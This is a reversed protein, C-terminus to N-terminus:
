YYGFAAWQLSGSANVMSYLRYRLSDTSPNIYFGSVNGANNHPSGVVLPRTGEKFPQPYTHYHSPTRRGDGDQNGISVVETEGWCIQLGVGPIRICTGNENSVVDLDLLGEVVAVRDVLDNSKKESSEALAGVLKYVNRFEDSAERATPDRGIWQDSHIPNKSPEFAEQEPNRRTNFM